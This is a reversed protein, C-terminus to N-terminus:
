RYRKSLLISFQVLDRRFNWDVQTAHIRVLQMGASVAEEVQSNIERSEAGLKHHDFKHLPGRMIAEQKRRKKEDAEQKRKEESAIWEAMRRLFFPSIRPRNLVM